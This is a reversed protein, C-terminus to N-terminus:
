LYHTTSVQTCIYVFLKNPTLVHLTRQKLGAAPWTICLCMNLMWVQMGLATEHGCEGSSGCNSLCAHGAASSCFSPHRQNLWRMRVGRLQCPLCPRRGFQRFSPLGQSSTGLLRTSRAIRSRYNGKSMTGVAHRRGLHAEAATGSMTPCGVHAEAATGRMAVIKWMNKKWFKRGAELLGIVGDQESQELVAHGLAADVLTWDVKFSTPSLLDIELHQRMWGGKRRKKEFLATSGNVRLRMQNKFRKTFDHEEMRYYTGDMAAVFTVLLIQVSLGQASLSQAALVVIITRMSIAIVILVMTLIHQSQGGFTPKQLSLWYRGSQKPNGDNPNQIQKPNLCEYKPNIVSFEEGLPSLDEGM